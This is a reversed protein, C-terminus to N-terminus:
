MTHARACTSGFLLTALSAVEMVIVVRGKCGTLTFSPADRIRKESGCGGGYRWGTWRENSRRIEGREIILLQDIQRLM